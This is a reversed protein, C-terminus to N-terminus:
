EKWFILKSRENYNIGGWWRKEMKKFKKEYRLENENIKVLEM